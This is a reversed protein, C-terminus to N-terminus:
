GFAFLPIFNIVPELMVVGHWGQYRRNPRSSQGYDRVHPAASFAIRHELDSGQTMRPQCPILYILHVILKFRVACFRM